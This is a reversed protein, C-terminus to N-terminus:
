VALEGLTREMLSVANGLTETDFAFRGGAAAYLEPLTVTAGLALARRYDTVAQEQDHLANSWVQVSGLQAMGYEVYYFPVHYLHLKNHWGTGIYDDFEDWDLHPHFRLWLERWAADCKAPQAAAKPHTYAWHQFGDVVAMYPWFLLSRELHECRARAAEEKSYFGGEDKALYPAALLEMAMSAVEAFEMGVERQMAYPLRASEFVHFAHGGEHLLTQVDGHVGVANMFIFPLRQRHYETCYGGPAKGKRNGLDLLGGKRMTSFKAGLEPAVANFIRECGAELEAVNGFPTLPDRGQADVALDWPRLDGVNLLERRQELLRGAAPLAVDAIADHFELCDDPSYDFRQLAKWCFERFDACDANAAIRCRVELLEQWINNIADRDALRREAALRWVAERRERDTELMVPQLQTLTKEEGDWEISQAGIIEDYRNALKKSETFLPLNAECFLEAEARIARLQVTFGEPELGSALLREKLQQEAAQAPEGVDELFKHYTDRAIEDTTDVTTAIHMRTGVESLLEVLDSWRQLWDGIGDDNLEAAALSEYHPAYDEWSWGLIEESTAPLTM